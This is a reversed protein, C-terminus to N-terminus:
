GPEEGPSSFPTMVLALALASEYRLAGEDFGSGCVGMCQERAVDEGCVAM